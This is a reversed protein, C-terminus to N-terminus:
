GRPAPTGSLYDAPPAVVRAPRSAMAAGGHNGLTVVDADSRQAPSARQCGLPALCVVLLLWWWRSM